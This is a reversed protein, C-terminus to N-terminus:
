SRQPATARRGGVSRFISGRRKGRTILAYLGPAWYYDREAPWARVRTIRVGHQTEERPLTSSSDTTAVTVDIGSQVLRRAAEYVHTEIGGMYPFYRATVMLVRLPTRPQAQAPQTHTTAAGLM